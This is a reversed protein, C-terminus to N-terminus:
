NGVPDLCIKISGRPLRLAPALDAAAFPAAINPEADEDEEANVASWGLHERADRMERVADLELAMRFLMRKVLM